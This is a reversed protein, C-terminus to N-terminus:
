AHLQIPDPTGVTPLTPAARRSAPTIATMTKAGKRSLFAVTQPKLRLLHAPHQFVRSFGHPWGQPYAWGARFWPSRHLRVLERFKPMVFGRKFTPAAVEKGMTTEIVPGKPKAATYRM